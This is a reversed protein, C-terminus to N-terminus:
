LLSAQSSEHALLWRKVGVGGAFGVLDGSSGVVRHCPIMIPIPNKGNAAGVARAKNVDGMRRAQDGYTVTEGYPITRLAAWAALQFETGRPALPVDFEVRDGAFYEALQSAATDLLESDGDGADTVADFHLPNHADAGALEADTDWHVAVIGDDDAFIGLRGIPTDLTRRQITM